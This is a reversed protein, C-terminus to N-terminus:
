VQRSSPEGLHCGLEVQVGGEVQLKVVIRLMSEFDM